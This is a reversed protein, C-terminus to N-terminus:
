HMFDGYTEKSEEIEQRLPAIYEPRTCLDHLIQTPTATSSHITTFSLKLLVSAIFEKDTEEDQANDLMWQLFDQLKSKLGKRDNLIRVIVQKAIAQHQSIKSLEPIWSAVLPRIILTNKLRRPQLCDTSQM